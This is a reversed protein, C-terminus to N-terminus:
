TIICCKVHFFRKSPNSTPNGPILLYAPNPSSWVWYKTIDLDLFVNKKPEPIRAVTRFSLPFPSPSRAWTPTRLKVRVRQWDCHVICLPRLLQSSAPCSILAQNDSKCIIASSFFSTISHMSLRIEVIKGKQSPHSFGLPSVARIPVSHPHLQLLSGTLGPSTSGRQFSHQYHSTRLCMKRIKAGLQPPLLPTGARNGLLVGATVSKSRSSTLANGGSDWFKPHSSLKLEEQRGFCLGKSLPSDNERVAYAPFAESKTGIL